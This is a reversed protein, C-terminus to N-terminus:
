LWRVASIQVIAKSHDVLFMQGFESLLIIDFVWCYGAAISRTISVRIFVSLHRVPLRHLLLHYPSTNSTTPGDDSCYSHQNRSLM